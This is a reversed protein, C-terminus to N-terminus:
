GEMKSWSVITDQLNNEQHQQKNKVSAVCKQMVAPEVSIQILAILPTIGIGKYTTCSPGSVILLPIPNFDLGVGGM